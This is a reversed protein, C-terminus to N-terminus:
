SMVERKVSCALQPCSFWRELRALCSATRALTPPARALAVLGGVVGGAIAGANSSGGGPSAPAGSGSGSDPSSTGGGAPTGPTSASPGPAGSEPAPTPPSGPTGQPVVSVIVTQAPLGDNNLVQGPLSVGNPHPRPKHL